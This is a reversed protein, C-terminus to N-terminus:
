RWRGYQAWAIVRLAFFGAAFALVFVLGLRVAELMTANDM